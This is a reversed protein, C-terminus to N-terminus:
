FILDIPELPGDPCIKSCIRASHTSLQSVRPQTPSSLLVFFNQPTSVSLSNNNGSTVTRGTGRFEHFTQILQRQSGLSVNLALSGRKIVTPGPPLNTNVGGVAGELYEDLAGLIQAPEVNEENNM